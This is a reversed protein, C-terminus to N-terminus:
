RNGRVEVIRMGRKFARYNSVMRERLGPEDLLDHREEADNALDFLGLPRGQATMLKLDGEFYAQRENTFPGQAMDVLMPRATDTGAIGLMEPLLSHGSVFDTGSDSPLEVRMLDLVTPALDVLDRRSSIRIPAVGPVYLIFPVRVLPEWLEFGHRIMGHEGFSEGHDSTIAIATRKGWAQSRVFDIVRGIQYDVFAVEGHYKGLSDNGFAFGEHGVYEAHPDTYQSWLFFRGNTNEPKALQALIRETLKEGTSSRDGEVYGSGSSADSDVVDFGRDFGYLPQYFYWYGQVSLTRIGARQLRQQLFTDRKSFASFHGFDRNTESSHKGILIPGVSKGTYSAPAYAHELVAAQSALEDLRPTVRKPNRLVDARMTDVILLILNLDNPISARRARLEEAPPVVSRRSVSEVADTGSCDEDIGNQPVDEQAPNRNRDHDDCDGGGFLRSFGDHDRDALRRAIGLTTRSLPAGREVALAVARVDLSRVAARYSLGLPLCAILLLWRPRLWGIRSPILYGSLAILLLMSPARLDLEPRKFVGFIAFASGAGSTPGAAVAIGVPLLGLALGFVAWRVPNPPDQRLRVGVYRALALVPVAALLALGIAAACLLTGVVAPPAASGLLPLSLRAVGFLWGAITLPTLALLVAMRAQRRADSPRLKQPLYGLSPPADPHLLISLATVCAGVVFCLPVILGASALALQWASAGNMATHRAYIAEVPSLALGALVCCATVSLWRQTGRVTIPDLWAEDDYGASGPRPAISFATVATQGIAAPADNSRESMPEADAVVEAGAVVSDASVPPEPWAPVPADRKVLDPLQPPQRRSSPASADGQQKQTRGLAETSSPPLVREDPGTNIRPTEPRPPLPRPLASKTSPARDEHSAPASAGSGTSRPSQDSAFNAVGSGLSISSARDVSSSVVHPPRAPPHIPPLQKQPARQSAPVPATVEVSPRRFFLTPEESAGTPNAEGDPPRAATSGPAREQLSRDLFRTPEEAEMELGAESGGSAAPFAGDKSRPDEEPSVSGRDLYQTVEESDGASDGPVALRSGAATEPRRSKEVASASLLAVGVDPPTLAADARQVNRPSLPAVSSPKSPEGLVGVAAEIEAQKLLAASASHEPKAQADLPEQANKDGM